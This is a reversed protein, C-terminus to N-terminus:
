DADDSIYCDGSENGQFCRCRESDDSALVLYQERCSSYDHLFHSIDPWKDLYAQGLCGYFTRSPVEM